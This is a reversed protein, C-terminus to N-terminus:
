YSRSLTQVSSVSETGTPRGGSVAPTASMTLAETYGTSYNRDERVMQTPGTPTNTSSNWGAYTRMEHNPDNYVTYTVNGNPDTVKTGRGLSDVEISTLLHLGGGTPTSWGSPLNSFDGTQTTDVDTIAKTAAGTVDYAIYTQFGDPDKTWI